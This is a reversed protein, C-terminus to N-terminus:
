FKGGTQIILLASTVGAIGLLLAKLKAGSKYSLYAGCWIGACMGILGYESITELINM